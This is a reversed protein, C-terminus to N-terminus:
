SKIIFYRSWNNFYRKFKQKLKKKQNVWTKKSIKQRNLLNKTLNNGFIKLSYMMFHLNESRKIFKSNSNKKKVFTKGTDDQKLECSEKLEEFIQLIEQISDKSQIFKKLCSTPNM